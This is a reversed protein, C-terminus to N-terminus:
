WKMGEVSDMKRFLAKCFAGCPERRPILPADFLYALGVDHLVIIFAFRWM